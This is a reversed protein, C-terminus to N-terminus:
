KMEVNFLMGTYEPILNAGSNQRIGLEFYDGAVCDVWGTAGSIINPLTAVGLTIQGGDYIAVGNKYILSVRSGSSSPGWTVTYEMRIKTVGSPITIRSPNTGASWIGSMGSQAQWAIMTDIGANTAIASIASTRTLRATGGYSVVAPVQPLVALAATMYTVSEGIQVAPSTGASYAWLELYDTTGNMYVLKSGSSTMSGASPTAYVGGAIEAGNKRIAGEAAPVSGSAVTYTLFSVQYYGEVNPQFRYNTSSDFCNATDFLEANLQVKTWTSSAIAQPTGSRYASFSPGTSPVVPLPVQPLQALSASFFTIEQGPTISLTGSNAYAIVRVDLYDTTGNMYVLASGAMGTVTPAANGQYDGVAFIAGNKHLVASQTGTGFAGSCNLQVRWAVNYYGEATPQFRRNTTSDFCNKTDFVETNFPVLTYTSNAFTLASGSMYASFAPGPAVVPAIMSPGPLAAFSVAMRTEVDAPVVQLTGTGSVYAWLELYDTTGNMYVLDSAVGRRFTTATGPLYNGDSYKAGNKYINVSLDTMTNTASNAAVLADVRYYGAVNPTIRGNAPNFIAGTDFTAVNLNVKTWTSSTVTQSATLSARCSPGVTSLKAAPVTSFVVPPATFNVLTGANSSSIVTTRALHTADVRTGLFIEFETGNEACFWSTDGNATLGSAVTVCGAAPGTLTLTGTGLTSTTEKCRDIAKHTM